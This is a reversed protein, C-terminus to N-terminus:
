KRETENEIKELTEEFKENEGLKERRLPVTIGALLENTCRALVQRLKIEDIAKIDNAETETIYQKGKAQNVLDAM